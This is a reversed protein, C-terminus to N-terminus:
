CMRMFVSFGELHSELPECDNSKMHPCLFPSDELHILFLFYNGNVTVTNLVRASINGLACRRRLKTITIQPLPSLRGSLPLLQEWDALTAATNMLHVTDRSGGVVIIIM